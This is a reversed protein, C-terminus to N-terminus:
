KRSIESDVTLIKDNILSERIFELVLKQHPWSCKSFVIWHGNKLKQGDWRQKCQKGNVKVGKEYEFWKVGPIDAIWKLDTSTAKWDHTLDDPSAFVLSNAHEATKLEDVLYQRVPNNEESPWCNPNFAITGGFLEKKFAAYRIANWAGCSHGALFIQKFPVGNSNFKKVVEETVNMRVDTSLNRLYEQWYPCKLTHGFGKKICKKASAKFKRGAERGGTADLHRTNTILCNMWVVVEKDGIKAGSLMSIFTLDESQNCFKEKTENGGHNWILLIKNEPNDINYGKTLKFAKGKLDSSIFGSSKSGLQKAQVSLSINFFLLGLVLIGLLKKM